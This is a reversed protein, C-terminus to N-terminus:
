ADYFVLREPHKRYYLNCCTMCLIWFLLVCGAVFIAKGILRLSSPIAAQSYILFLAILFLLLAIALTLKMRQFRSHKYLWLKRRKLVTNIDPEELSLKTTQTQEKDKKLKEEIRNLRENGLSVPIDVPEDEISLNSFMCLPYEIAAISNDKAFLPIALKCVAYDSNRVSNLAIRLAKVRYIFMCDKWEQALFRKQEMLKDLITYQYEAEKLKLDETRRETITAITSLCDNNQLSNICRSLGKSGILYEGAHIIFVFDADHEQLIRKVSAIEGIPHQNEIVHVQRLNNPQHDTINWLFRECQFGDSCDDCVVLDYLPYDQEFVSQLTKVNSLHNGNVFEIILLSNEQNMKEM